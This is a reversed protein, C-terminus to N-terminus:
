HEPHISAGIFVASLLTFVYAQITAVLLELFLIAVALVFGGAGLSITMLHNTPDAAHLIFGLTTFALLVTHGAFMNAFLRIALATPKILLGMLEIIALLTWVFLGIPALTFPVPILNKWFAGVGQEKMGFFLMTILTTTAFAATVGPNGSATGTLPILGMYNFSLIALFLCVIHATWKDGHHINPRVIDDRIFIVIMEIMNQLRGKPALDTAKRKALVLLLVAMLVLAISGWFTQQNFFSLPRPFSPAKADAVMMAKALAVPPAEQALLAAPVKGDIEAQFELFDGAWAIQDPSPDAATYADKHSLYAFNKASYKPLNFILIPKHHLWEIAPFAHNHHELVGTFTWEAHYGDEAHGDHGDAVSTELHEDAAASPEPM